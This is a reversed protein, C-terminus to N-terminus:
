KVTERLFPTCMHTHARIHTHVGAAARRARREQLGLWPLQARGEWWTDGGEFVGGALGLCLGTTTKNLIESGPGEIPCLFLNNFAVM